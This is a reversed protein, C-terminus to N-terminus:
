FQCIAPSKREVHQLHWEEPWLAPGHQWLYLCLHLQWLQEAQVGVLLGELSGNWSGGREGEGEKGGRDGRGHIAVQVTAGCRYWRRREWEVAAARLLGQGDYGVAAMMLWQQHRPGPQRPGGSEAQGRRPPPGM